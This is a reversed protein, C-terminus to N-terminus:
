EGLTRSLSTHVLESIKDVLDQRACNRFADSLRQYTAATGYKQRWKRLMYLSQDRASVSFPAYQLIDAEDHQALGLEPAVEKWDVILQSIRYLHEDSCGKSLSMDVYTFLLVFTPWGAAFFSISIMPGGYDTPLIIDIPGCM